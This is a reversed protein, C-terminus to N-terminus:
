RHPGRRRVPPPDEPRVLGSRYAWAVAQARDHLGLKTLVRSVHTKVTAESIILHEVIDQNTFGHAAIILVETERLTLRELYSDAPLLSVPRSVFEALLKRAVPPDLWAYGGAVARVAEGLMRSSASKLLFGSAGAHLAEHVVSDDNFTTLILVASVFKGDVVFEDAVLRRTAQVGDARPMRVDMVVVDPRLSRARAVAEDGDGAQGVVVMDPEADIM